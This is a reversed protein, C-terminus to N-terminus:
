ERGRERGIEREKKRERMETNRNRDENKSSCLTSRNRFSRTIIHNGVITYERVLLRSIKYVVIGDHVVIGTRRNELVNINGYKYNSTSQRDTSLAVAKLVCCMFMSSRLSSSTRDGGYGGDSTSNSNSSSSSVDGYCFTTLLLNGFAHAKM